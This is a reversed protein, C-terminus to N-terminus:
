IVHRIKRMTKLQKLNGTLSDILIADSFREEPVAKQIRLRLLLTNELLSVLKSTNFEWALLLDDQNADRNYDM